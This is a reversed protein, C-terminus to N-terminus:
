EYITIKLVASPKNKLLFFTIVGSTIVLGGVAGWILPNKMFSNKKEDHFDFTILEDKTIFREVCEEGICIIKFGYSIKEKCPARCFKEGNIFVDEGSRSVIAIEFFRNERKLEERISKVFDKIKQPIYMDKDISDAIEPLISVAKSFSERAYETKGEMFFSIGDILFTKSYIEIADRNRLSKVIRKRIRETIERAKEGEFTIALKKANEIEFDLLDASYARVFIFFLFLFFIFSRM